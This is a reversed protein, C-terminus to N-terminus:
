RNRIGQRRRPRPSQRRAQRPTDPLVALRPKPTSRATNFAALRRPSIRWLGHSAMAPTASLDSSHSGNVSASTATSKRVAPPVSQCPATNTAAHVPKRSASTAPRVQPLTSRAAPMRGGRGVFGVLLQHLRHRTLQAVKQGRQGGPDALGRQKRRKGPADRAAMSVQRIFKRPQHLPRFHDGRHPPLLFAPATPSERSQYQLAASRPSILITAM